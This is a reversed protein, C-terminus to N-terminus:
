RFPKELLHRTTLYQEAADYNQPKIFNQDYTKRERRNSTYVVTNASQRPHPLKVMRVASNCKGGVFPTLSLPTEM